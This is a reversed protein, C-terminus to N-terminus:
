CEWSHGYIWKPVSSSHPFCHKQQSPSSIYSHKVVEGWVESELLIVDSGNTGCLPADGGFSGSYFNHATTFTVYVSSQLSNSLFVCFLSSSGLAHLGSWFCFWHYEFELTMPIFESPSLKQLIGLPNNHQKAFLLISCHPPLDNGQPLLPFNDKNQNVASSYYNGVAQRLASSYRVEDRWIHQWTLVSAFKYKSLTSLVKQAWRNEGPGYCLHGQM